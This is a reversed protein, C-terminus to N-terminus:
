STRVSYRNASVNAVRMATVQQDKSLGAERAADTRSFTPAGGGETTAGTAAKVERLLEGARREFNLSSRITSMQCRAGIHLKYEIVDLWAAM